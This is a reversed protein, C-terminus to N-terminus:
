RSRACNMWYDLSPATAGALTLRYVTSGSMDINTTADATWTQATGSVRVAKYTTDPHRYYLTVTGSGWTGDLAVMVIGTTCTVTNSDGDVSFTGSVNAFASLPLFLLLALLKKM